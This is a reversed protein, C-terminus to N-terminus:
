QTLRSQRVKVLSFLLFLLLLGVEIVIRWYNFLRFCELALFASLLIICIILWAKTKQFPLYFVEKINTIHKKIEEFLVTSNEFDYHQKSTDFTFKKGKAKITILRVEEWHRSPDQYPIGRWKETYEIVANEIESWRYQYDHSARRIIIADNSIRIEEIPLFVPYNSRIYGRKKNHIGKFILVQDKTHNKEVDGM